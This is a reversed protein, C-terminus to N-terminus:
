VTEFRDIYEAIVTLIQEIRAPATGETAADRLSKGHKTIADMSLRIGEDMLDSGLTRVSAYDERSLATHAATVIERVTSFLEHAQPTNSTGHTPQEDGLLSRIIDFLSSKKVPKPLHLNAGTEFCKEADGVLAYATMAVIPLPTLNHEREWERIARTAEYGDMVPMQIDMLIIDWNGKKFEEFGDAGNEAVTLRCPTNKLYTQIVFANYKSDELM